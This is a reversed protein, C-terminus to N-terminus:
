VHVRGVEVGSRTGEQLHRGHVSLMCPYLMHRHCQCTVFGGSPVTCVRVPHPLDFETGHIWGPLSARDILEVTQNDRISRIASQPVVRSNITGRRPFTHVQVSPESHHPSITPYVPAQELSLSLLKRTAEGRLKPLDDCVAFLGQFYFRPTMSTLSFIPTCHKIQVM